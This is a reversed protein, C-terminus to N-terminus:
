SEGEADGEAIARIEDLLRDVAGDGGLEYAIEFLGRWVNRRVEAPHDALWCGLQEPSGIRVGVEIGAVEPDDPLSPNGTVQYIEVAPAPAPAAPAVAPGTVRVEGPIEITTM